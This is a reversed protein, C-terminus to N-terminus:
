PGVFIRAQSHYASPTSINLYVDGAVSQPVQVNVQYLGPYLPALGSYFVTSTEGNINVTVPATAVSLPNVAGAAGDAVAPNVKGLGTLFVQVIEGPHAPNTPSVVSYDAHLIAGDGVGNEGLTFVGPATSSGYVMVSNSLQGNNNVRITVFSSSDIVTYPVVVDLRTPSVQYIAAPIGNMSVSVGAISDQYPTGTAASTSPALGSGYLSILEGPAIPDTIPAFSAANSIYGPNLFVGSGSFAPPKVALALGYNDASGTLIFDQGGAGVASQFYTDSITGNSTIQYESDFTYDIAAVDPAHLHEHWLSTGTGSANFSGSYNTWSIAGGSRLPSFDVGMGALYFLDKLNSNSAPAPLEKMGVLLDYGDPAGGIVLNGDSSVYLIKNGGILSSEAPLGAPLPFTATGSGNASLSYTAGSVVQSVAAIGLNAANGSILFSNFTGIGSATASFLADRVLVNKGDLFDLLGMWYAGQLTTQSVSSAAPIAVLM